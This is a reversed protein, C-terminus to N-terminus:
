YVNLGDGLAGIISPVGSWDDSTTILNIDSWNQFFNSTALTHYVQTM